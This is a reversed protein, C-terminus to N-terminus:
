PLRIEDLSGLRQRVDDDRLHSQVHELLTSIRREFTHNELVLERGREARHQREQPHSLYYDVLEELQEPSEYTVVAEGFEQDLEEMRDSIVLAGCALADYVRNSIFGYERMDDWHDNLVIAASSYAKRVETNPLYEGVVYRKDILGEWDRGWVALDYGPSVGPGYGPSVGSSRPSSLLDGLIRRRVKRSNGVFVLDHGHEPEYDPYFLDPDTAQELTHIPTSTHEELSRAWRKSAVFVLDYRECEAATLKEPHSINWLVNLQSPKTEYLSLGKLHIAVDCALGELSDWSDLTQIICPHGAAEFQKRMARAYHMDGWSEAEKKDPAGIKICFSLAEARHRLIEQLQQARKEYTHGELVMRRYREGLEERRQPDALLDDLQARLSQRDSYAPFEEDFLERAGSECNTIVPTGTALADFVRSNIAGYPLTPSATDDIVLKASSYVKAMEDYPLAGQAYRAVAPVNEWGKGFLKFREQQGVELADVVGRLEGWFNGTFVYDAEYASETSTPHFRSPNTAIPFLADVRKSSNDEIIRASISSSALVVDYESFWPHSVWRETWNRVWAITTVGEPARSIDYLDILVLLYDLDEPLDYWREGKREVYSVRWGMEELAGGMEHATHWDGYGDKPDKSTVTLAVHPTGEFTWYGGHDGSQAGAHASLRELECRRNLRPGWREFFMQRNASRNERMFQRGEAKQSPSEDHFLVARGSSIVREGQDLLKLCLDVDESGYRYGGDFGGASAFADRGVLMCAATVAPRQEDTGLREDLADEGMGVNRHWQQGSAKRFGVGRHQLAYGSPTDHESVGPYLLRAGVAGGDAGGSAEGEARRQYLAVMEKLWGSEFPEVDNNLFLLLEGAALEAGQNNARSFSLNEANEIVRVEFPWEGSTVFGVSSDSSANDVLIVELKEAPYDTKRALGGFLKQLYFLGNRNLVVVSVKPCEELVPVPGLGRRIRRALEEKSMRPKRKRYELLAKRKGQAVARGSVSRLASPIDRNSDALELAGRARTELASEPITIPKASPGDRWTRYQQLTSILHTAATPVRPRRRLRRHLEHLLRGTRWQRSGLLAPFLEDVLLMWRSLASSERELEANRLRLRSVEAEAEQLREIAAGGLAADEGLYNEGIEKLGELARSKREPDAGSRLTRALRERHGRLAPEADEALSLWEAAPVALLDKM